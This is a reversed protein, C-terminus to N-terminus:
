KWYDVFGKKFFYHFEQRGARSNATTIVDQIKEGNKKFWVWLRSNVHYISTEYGWRDFLIQMGKNTHFACHVPLLYFWDPDCTIRESVLTHIALVGDDSVLSAIEDLRAYDRVHEFVSTSIVLDYGKRSLDAESLYGAKPPMYRDYKLLCFDYLQSLTESLKGDGCGYDLWPLKCPLLGLRRLDAIVAAQLNLREIWRKDDPNGNTGQYSQHYEQNLQEWRAEPMELHTKSVVFYCYECELYDVQSLGYQGFPKSLYPHMPRQCIMCNM